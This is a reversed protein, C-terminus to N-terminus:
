VRITNTSKRNQASIITPQDNYSKDRVVPYHRLLISDRRIDYIETVSSVSLCGHVACLEDLLRQGFLTDARRASRLGASRTEEGGAIPAGRETRTGGPFVVLVGRFVSGYFIVIVSFIRGFRQFPFANHQLAPSATAVNM